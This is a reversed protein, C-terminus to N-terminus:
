LKLSRELRDSYESGHFRDVAAQLQKEDIWGKRFAIEEPSSVVEDRLQTMEQIFQSTSLLATPTGADRWFTARSLRRVQLRGQSLYEELLDVIEHEGRPSPMVRAALAGVDEPFVYLGPVIWNSAPADPKEVISTTNGQSDFAVVAYREPDSVRVAFIMAQNVAIQSPFSMGVEAGHFVNDGLVLMVPGSAQGRLGCILGDVIGRPQEQVAFRIRVGIGEGSGLLREFSALDHSNVVITIDQVGALMLTSLPYFVMPKDYVQQLHKNVVLSSAGLRKGLGGALLIGRM